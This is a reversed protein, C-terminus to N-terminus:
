VLKTTTTSRNQSRSSSPVARFLQLFFFLFFHMQIRHSLSLHGPETEGHESGTQGPLSFVSEQVYSCRVCTGDGVVSIMTKNYM